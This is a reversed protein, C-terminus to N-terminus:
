NKAETKQRPRIYVQTKSSFNSTANFLRKSRWQVCMRFQIESKEGALMQQVRNATM